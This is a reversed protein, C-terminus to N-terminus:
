RIESVDPASDSVLRHITQRNIKRSTNRPMSAISLWRIEGLEVNRVAAVLAQLSVTTGAQPEVVIALSDTGAVLVVEAVGTVEGLLNEVEYPFVYGSGFVIADNWRGLVVLNGNADWRGVDGTYFWEDDSKEAAIGDPALYGPAVAPGKVRIEGAGATDAIAEAYPAINVTSLASPKGVCLPDEFEPMSSTLIALTSTETLGYSNVIEGHGEMLTKMRALTPRPTRQGTAVCVRLGRAPLLDAVGSDLLERWGPAQLPFITVGDRTNLEISATSVDDLAVITGGMVIMCRLAGIAVNINTPSACIWRESHRARMGLCRNVGDWFDSGVSRVIGKPVGTTGTSYQIASIADDAREAVWERGAGAVAIRDYSDTGVESIWVALGFEGCVRTAADALEPGTFIEKIDLLKVADALHDSLGMGLLVPQLGAAQAALYLEIGFTGQYFAIAVRNGEVLGRARFGAVMGDMRIALEGWTLSGASSTTVDGVLAPRDAIRHANEAVRTLLDPM